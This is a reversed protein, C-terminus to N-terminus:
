SKGQLHMIKLARMWPMSLIHLNNTLLDEDSAQKNPPSVEDLNEDESDDWEEGEVNLEL